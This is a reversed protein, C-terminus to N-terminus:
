PLAVKNGPLPPLPLPLIDDGRAERVGGSVSVLGSGDLRLGPRPGTPMYSERTLIDGRPSIVTHAFLRPETQHLVHWSRFLM